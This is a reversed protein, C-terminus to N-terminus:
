FIIVRDLEAIKKVFYYKWKRFTKEDMGFMSHMNAENCNTKLWHLAWLLHNKQAHSDFNPTEKLLVWLLKCISPNVGFHAVFRELQTALCVGTSKTVVNGLSLFWHELGDIIVRNEFYTIYFNIHM